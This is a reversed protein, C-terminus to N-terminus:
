GSSFYSLIFCVPFRTLARCISFIRLKQLVTVRARREDPMSFYWFFLLFINTDATRWRDKSHKESFNSSHERASSQERDILIVVHTSAHSHISSPFIQKLKEFSRQSCGRFKRGFNSTHSFYERTHQTHECNELLFSYCASDECNKEIWKCKTTDRVDIVQATRSKM